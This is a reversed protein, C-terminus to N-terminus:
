WSQFWSLWRLTLCSVIRAESLKSTRDHTVYLPNKTVTQEGIAAPTKAQSPKRSVWRWALLTSRVADQARM